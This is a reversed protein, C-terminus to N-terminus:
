YEDGTGRSAQGQEAVLYDNMVWQEVGNSQKVLTKYNGVALIEANRIPYDVNTRVLMHFEMCNFLTCAVM